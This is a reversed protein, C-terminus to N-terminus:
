YSLGSQVSSSGIPLSVMRQFFLCGFSFIYSFGINVLRHNICIHVVALPVISLSLASLNCVSCPKYYDCLFCSVSFTTVFACSCHVYLPFCLLAPCPSQLQRASNFYALSFSGGIKRVTGCFTLSLFAASFTTLYNPSWYYLLLFYWLRASYLFLM